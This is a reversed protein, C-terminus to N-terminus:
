DVQIVGPSGMGGGMQENFDDLWEQEAAAADTEGM